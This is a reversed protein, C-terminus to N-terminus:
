AHHQAKPGLIIVAVITVLPTLLLSLLFTGWYGIRTNRGFYAVLFCVVVYLVPILYSIM